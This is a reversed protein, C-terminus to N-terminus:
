ALPDGSGRAQQEARLHAAAATRTHVGLKEFINEVHKRVTHGSVFLLAAIEVNTKGRAIWGLVEAERPTLGRTRSAHRRFEAAARM